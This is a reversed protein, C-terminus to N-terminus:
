QDVDDFVSRSDGNGSGSSGRGYFDDSDPEQPMESQLEEIVRKIEALAADIAAIADPYEALEERFSDLTSTLEYFYNEPDDKRNHNSRWEDITTDLNPLLETRVSELIDALENDTLIGRIRELLFGSDPTDVALKRIESVVDRRKQEPLLGLERLRAIVSVDSVVYLYSGAHLGSMFEPYRAVYRELFERNCRHALFRHLAGKQQWQRTDLSEIRTMFADYRDSPIIVKVGEIGVDGCSVEEFLTEVPAGALYIDMLERDEAVVAAFADRITPHKFRWAHSGGHLSRLLLSGDLANLADRVAAGSGGLLSVAEEEDKTMKVPSPLSGARMFVLALASRSGIDLTRIIESLLELPRTVFDDL